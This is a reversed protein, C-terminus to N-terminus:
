RNGLNISGIIDFTTGKPELVFFEGMPVPDELVVNSINLDHTIIVLNAPGRHKLIEQVEREQNAKAQDESVTGPARLYEVPTASGFALKGTDICRCYPSTLIRGVPIGRARFASGIHEAQDVGRASLNVEEECHGPSLRGIGERIEVHAHRLLIVKGGQKLAAWVSEDDALALGASLTALLVVICVLLSATRSKGNDLM